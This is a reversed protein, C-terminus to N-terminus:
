PYPTNTVFTPSPYAGSQTATPSPTATAPTGSVTATSTPSPTASPPTGTVIPTASPTATPPTGTVTPGPTLSEEGTATPLGTLTATQPVPTVLVAVPTLKLRSMTTFPSKTYNLWLFQYAEVASQADNALESALGLLYYYEDCTWDRECLLGPSEQMNELKQQLLEPSGGGFLAERYTELPGFFRSPYEERLPVQVLFASRTDPFRQMSFALEGNLLTAPQYKLGADAIYAEEIVELIPRPSGIIGVPLAQHVGAGRALIFFELRAQPANRVTFWRESEDDGDFDYFGSASVVIGWDQLYSLANVQNPIIAALSQIALSPDCFQAQWCARFIDEPKQFAALFQQAPEIWRSTHVTPNVSVENMLNIAEETHGTLARYVGLRYKWRDIEDSPYPNGEVDTAPPWIPLLEEMLDAATQAGWFHIAQDIVAECVSADSPLDGFSISTEVPKFYLGNWRYAREINVPCLSYIMTSFVVENQGISNIRAAWYNEFDMGLAFIDNEPIFDLESPEAKGLSFARPAQLDSEGKLSSFYILIEDGNSASNDLDAFLWNAQRPQSYDFRSMLPFAQFVGSRVILRIFASGGESRLEIIYSALTGPPAKGEVMFFLMRPEHIAFWAYLEPLSVQARNLNDAILRAYASGAEPNGALALNYALDWRWADAEPALPFRLLAERLGFIPYRFSEFYAQKSEDASLTAIGEPVGQLIRAMRDAQAADWENLRYAGSFVLGVAPTLSPYALPKLTGTPTLTETPSPTITQTSTPRPTWTATASATGTASPLSTTLVRTPSPTLTTRALSNQLWIYGVMVLGLALICVSLLGLNLALLAIRSNQSARENGSGIEAM